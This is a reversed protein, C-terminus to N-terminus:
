AAERLRLLPILEEAELTCLWPQRNIRHAVIPLDHADAEDRAQDMAKWINLREVRKIQWHVGAVELCDRKDTGFQDINRKAEPWFPILHQQIFELEGRKGKARSNVPSM